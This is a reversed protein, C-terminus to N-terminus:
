PQPSRDGQRPPNASNICSCFECAGSQTVTLTQGAITLTGTRPSSATRVAVDYTVTGNGTGGSSATVTIWATSNSVATWTCGSPTTVGATQSGGAAIVSQATPAISFSCAGAQTVTVTRGAITLTGTRPTASTNSRSHVGCHREGNWERREDGHDMSCQERRDMWLRDDGDGDDHLVRDNRTCETVTFLRQLQVRRRGYLQVYEFPRQSGFRRSRVAAMDATYNTGIIPWGLFAATMNVTITGTGDPNPKGLSVTQFPQSAGVLYLGIEYSQVLPTGGISTANHDSSANFLAQTPNVAPQAVAHSPWFGLLATLAILCRLFKCGHVM